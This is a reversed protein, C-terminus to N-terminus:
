ITIQYPIEAMLPDGPTWPFNRAATLTAIYIIALLLRHKNSTRQYSSNFRPMTTFVSSIERQPSPLTVKTQDKAPPM